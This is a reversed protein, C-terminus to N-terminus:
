ANAEARQGAGSRRLGAIRDATPPSADPDVRVDLVVPRDCRLAHEIAPRLEHPAMISEAAAGLARAIGAADVFERFDGAEVGHREGLLQETGLRVLGHGRNSMVIWVFAGLRQEVAAHLELGKSLFAADGTVCVTPLGSGIRVGLSAALPHAM